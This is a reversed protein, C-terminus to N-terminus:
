WIHINACDIPLKDHWNPLTLKHKWNTFHVSNTHTCFELYTPMAYNLKTERLYECLPIFVFQIRCSNSGNVQTVTNSRTTNWNTTKKKHSNLRRNRNTCKLYEHGFQEQHIVRNHLFPWFGTGNATATRPWCMGRRCCRACKTYMASVM